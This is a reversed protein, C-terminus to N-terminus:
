PNEEMETEGDDEADAHRRRMDSEDIIGDGNRDMHKVIRALQRGFEARTVKGDGDNDHDQFRDVMEERMADLWLAEYEALTLAADGDKDFGDLQKQREADIEAQTLKDDGDADYRELLQRIHWGHSGHGSWAGGQGHGRHWGGAHSVAAVAGVGIIAAALGGIAFKTSRKM